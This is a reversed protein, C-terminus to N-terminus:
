KGTSMMSVTGGEVNKVAIDLTLFRYPPKSNTPPSPPTSSDAQVLEPTDASSDLWIGGTFAGRANLRPLWDMATLSKNLEAM